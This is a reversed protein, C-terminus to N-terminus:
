QNISSIGAFDSAQSWIAVSSIIPTYLLLSLYFSV